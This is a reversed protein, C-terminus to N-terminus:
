EAPDLKATAPLRVVVLTGGASGRHFGVTGGLLHAREQMGLLGLAQPSSLAADSIGQGNDRVELVFWGDQSRFAVDVTSAAAHRAVNTLIEQFIRYFAIAVEPAFAPEEEPTNLQCAIGTRQEFQKIEHRLAMMLGLRDLVGPRLESAIRQVTTITADAVETAAVLKDLIPNLRADKLEELRNEAWQLDMKLGTLLQGLEDHIERAIHAREAERLSQLRMSLARLQERSLRLAELAQNRATIDHGQAITALIREGDPSRVVASNWLLWRISGDTHQIPIEVTEWYEGASARRIHALSHPRTDPPFLFSLEMGLVAESSRGTLREFARNFRTIKFGPDWVIIPANAYDLLNELYDKTERLAATREAVARELSEKEAFVLSGEALDLPAMSPGPPIGIPFDLGPRNRADSSSKSKDLKESNM